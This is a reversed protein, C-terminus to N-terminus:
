LMYRPKKNCYNEYTIIWERELKLQLSTYLLHVLQETM